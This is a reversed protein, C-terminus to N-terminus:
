GTPSGPDAGGDAPLGGRQTDDGHVRPGTGRVVQGPAPVGPGPPLQLLNPEGVEPAADVAEVEIIRSRTRGGEWIEDDNEQQERLTELTTGEIWGGVPLGTDGIESENWLVAEKTGDKVFVHQYTGDTTSYTSCLHYGPFVLGGGIITEMKKLAADLERWSGGTTFYRAVSDLVLHLRDLAGLQAPTPDHLEVVEVSTDEPTNSVLNFPVGGGYAMVSLMHVSGVETKVVHFGDKGELNAFPDGPPLGEAM